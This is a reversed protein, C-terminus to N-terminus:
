KTSFGRPKTICQVAEFTWSVQNLYEKANQKMSHYIGKSIFLNLNHWTYKIIQQQGPM